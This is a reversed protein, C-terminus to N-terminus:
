FLAQRTRLDPKLRVVLGALLEEHRRAKTAFFLILTILSVQAQAPPTDADVQPKIIESNKNTMKGNSRQNKIKGGGFSRVDVKIRRLRFRTDLM